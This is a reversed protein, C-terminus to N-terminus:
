TLETKNNREQEIVDTIQRSSKISMGICEDHVIRAADSMGQKWADLQIAKVFNAFAEVYKEPSYSYEFRDMIDKYEAAWQEANKM